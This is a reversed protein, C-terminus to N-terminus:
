CPVTAKGVFRRLHCFESLFYFNVFATCLLIGTLKHGDTLWSPYSFYYFFLECRAGCVKSAKKSVLFHSFFDM